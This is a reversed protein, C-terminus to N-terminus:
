LELWQMLLASAHVPQELPVLHGCDEVIELRSYKIGALMENQHDLSALGDSRGWILLTPCAIKALTPVSDIRNM